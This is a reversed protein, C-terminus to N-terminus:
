RRATLGVGARLQSTDDAANQTTIEYGVNGTLDLYRNIGWALGLAGDYVTEDEFLSNTPYDRWITGGTVKAVLDDRLQHTVTTTLQYAVYGSEGPTTSPEVSTSVNVNVDTGRRPSWLINGDITPSGISALRPDRFDTDQYGIGIEGKWKEGLDIELGARGGYSHNSRAYGQDDFEQDFVVRGLDAEVFPILAPSLEYGIRGRWTGATQNRDSMNILTGNALEADSYVTRALGVATTGRLLGFDRTISAGALFENVDSQRAAGPIANPDGTGTVNKQWLGEGTVTLAHRAWDSTLTSRLDTQLFTRDDRINGTKSNEFNYSQNISPRLIFSGLRLGEADERDAYQRLRLEDISPQRTNIRRIDEDLVSETPPMDSGALTIRVGPRTNLDGTNAATGAATKTAPTRGYATSTGATAAGPLDTGGTTPTATQGLDVGADASSQANAPSPWAALGFGLLALAAFGRLRLPHRGAKDKGYGMPDQGAHMCNVWRLAIHNVTPQKETRSSSAAALICDGTPLTM